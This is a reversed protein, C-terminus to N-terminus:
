RYPIRPAARQGGMVPFRLFDQACIVVAPRKRARRNQMERSKVRWSLAHRIKAKRGM